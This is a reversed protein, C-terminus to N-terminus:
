NEQTKPPSTVWIRLIILGTICFLAICFCGLNLLSTENFRAGLAGEAQRIWLTYLTSLLILVGSTRRILANKRSPRILLLLLLACGLYAPATLAASDAPVAGTYMSITPAFAAGYLAICLAAFSMWLQAPAVDDGKGPLLLLFAWPLLLATSFFGIAGGQWWYQGCVLGAAASLLCIPLAAKGRLWIALLRCTIMAAGCLQLVLLYASNDYMPELTNVSDPFVCGLATICTALTVWGCWLGADALRSLMLKPTWGAGCLPLLARWFEAGIGLAAAAAGAAFIGAPLANHLRWLPICGLVESNGMLAAPNQVHQNAMTALLLFLILTVLFIRKKMM